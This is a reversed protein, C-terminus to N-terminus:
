IKTRYYLACEDSTSAMSLIFNIIFLYIIIVIFNMQSYFCFSTELANDVILLNLEDVTVEGGRYQDQVM